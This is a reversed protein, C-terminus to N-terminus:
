LLWWALLILGVVVALGLLRLGIGAAILVTALTDWYDRHTRM